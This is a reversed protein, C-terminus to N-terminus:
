ENESNGGQGDCRIRRGWLWYLVGHEVVAAKWVTITVIIVAM